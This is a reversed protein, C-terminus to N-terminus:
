LCFSEIRSWIYLRKNLILKKCETYHM